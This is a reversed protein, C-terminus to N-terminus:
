TLGPAHRECLADAAIMEGAPDIARGEPEREGRDQAILELEDRDVSSVEVAGGLLPESVPHACVELNGHMGEGCGVREPVEFPVDQGFEIGREVEVSLRWAGYPGTDRAQAALTCM